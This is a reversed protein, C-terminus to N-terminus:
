RAGTRRFYRGELCGGFDVVLDQVEEVRPVPAVAPAVGLPSQARAALTLAVVDAVEHAFPPDDEGVAEQARRVAAAIRAPEFPVHRGDRKELWRPRNLARASAGHGGGPPGGGPPGGGPAGGGSSGSGSTSGPSGGPRHDSPGAASM